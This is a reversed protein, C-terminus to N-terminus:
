AEPYPELRWVEVWSGVVHGETSVTLIQHTRGWENPDADYKRISMVIHPEGIAWKVIGSDKTPTVLSGLPFDKNKRLFVERLLEIRAEPLTTPKDSEPEGGRGFPMAFVHSMDMRVFKPDDDLSESEEPTDGGRRPVYDDPKIVPYMLSDDDYDVERIIKALLDEARRLTIGEELVVESVSKDNKNSVLVIKM